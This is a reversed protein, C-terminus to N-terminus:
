RMLAMTGKREILCGTILEGEPANPVRVRVYNPTYGCNDEEVLVTVQKGLQAQVFTEELEKGITLLERARQEKVAKPLHGSMSAAATGPRKSYPFVHIRALGIERIFACTQAHEEETEGPFGAILDTTIACDPMASRLIEVAARYDATTYRRNMRALVTDCGSQLSLHFQGCLNPSAACTEVFRPTVINPDLSGLRVRDLGSISAALAIVDNLDPEFAALNIGTLVVERYGANALARLERAVSELTRSRPKGRAYPIVCYACYNACGDQIKLTARTRTDHTASLEEFAANSSQKTTGGESQPAILEECHCSHLKRVQEVISKRGTTGLILDVFGLAKLDAVNTQGLCGVAVIRANPNRRHARSLLQRSKKDSIQTVTCTNVIYADAQDDFSVIEDGAAQFLAIMAQTEYHNVKCGLTAFAVRM